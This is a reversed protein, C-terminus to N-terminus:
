KILVKSNYSGRNTKINVIYIGSLGSVEHKQSVDGNLSFNMMERGALDTIKVTGTYAEPNQIYLVKGASYAQVGSLLAPESIGTTNKFHLYFRDTISGEFPVTFVYNGTSRMDTYIGLETDELIVAIQDPINEMSETSFVYEGTLNADLGLRITYDETFGPLAQHIFEKGNDDVLFSYLAIHPNGKLKGADYTHDLGTSTGNIFAILIDNYDNGPGNVALYYRPVMDDGKYFTVTGHKRHDTDFTFTNNNANTCVMFGQGPAVYKAADSNSITIYDNRNGTYSAQENWLYLGGYTVDLNSSNTSILNTADANSNAALTSTFPNGVLNWGEATSGTTKKMTFTQDTTYVSGSLSLTPSATKYYVAYGKAAQFVEEDLLPNSGSGDEGNLIDVWNGIYGGYSYNEEWRYFQDNDAGATLGLSLDDFYL